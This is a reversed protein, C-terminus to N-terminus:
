RKPAAQRIAETVAINWYELRHVSSFTVIPAGQSEASTCRRVAEVPCLRNETGTLFAM